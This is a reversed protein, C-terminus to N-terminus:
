QYMTGKPVFLITQDVRQNGNIFLEIVNGDEYLIYYKLDFKTLQQQQRLDYWKYIKPDYELRRRDIYTDPVIFDLLVNLQIDQQTAIYQPQVPIMNSSVIIRDTKNFLPISSFEEKMITFFDGSGSPIEQKNNGFDQVLLQIGNFNNAGFLVEKSYFGSFFDDFLPKNMFIGNQNINEYFDSAILELLKTEQNFIIKPPAIPDYTYGALAVATVINNYATVYATNVFNLMEQVYYVPQYQEYPDGINSQIYNVNVTEQIIDAPTLGPDFSLTVTYTAPEKSFLFLPIANSPISLRTICCRYNNPDSLIKVNRTFQLEARKPISRVPDPPNYVLKNIISTTYYINNSKSDVNIVNCNVINENSEKDDQKYKVLLKNKFYSAM